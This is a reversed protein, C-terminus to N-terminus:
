QKRGLRLFEEAGMAWLGYNWKGELPPLFLKWVQQARLAIGEGLIMSEGYFRAVVFRTRGRRNLTQGVAVARFVM